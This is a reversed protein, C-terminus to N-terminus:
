DIYFVRQENIQQILIQILEDPNEPVDFLGALYRDLKHDDKNYIYYRLQPVSKGEYKNLVLIFKDFELITSIYVRTKRLHSWYRIRNVTAINAFWYIKLQQCKKEISDILNKPVDELKSIIKYNESLSKAMLTDNSFLQAKVELNSVILLFAVLFLTFITKKM